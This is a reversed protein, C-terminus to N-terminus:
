TVTLGTPPPTHCFIGRGKGLDLGFNPLLVLQRGVQHGGGHQCLCGPLRLHLVMDLLNALVGAEGQFSGFAPGQFYPQAPPSTTQSM